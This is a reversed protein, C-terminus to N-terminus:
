RLVQRRLLRTRIRHRTRQRHLPARDRRFRQEARLAHLLERPPQRSRQRLSACVLEPVGTGSIQIRKTSVHDHLSFHLGGNAFDYTNLQGGSTWVNTHSPETGSAGALETVQEGNQGLLYQNTLVFNNVSTPAGCATGTTSGKAIRRGEADYFYQYYSVTGTLNVAIECVRGEADYEYFNEGDYLVNGAGDYTFNSMRNTGAMPTLPSFVANDNAQPACPTITATSFAELTRNGFADYTWCGTSGQYPGSSVTVNNVRNLTDYGFVWNGLLGDNLALLNGNGAYGGSPVQYFTISDDMELTIRGRTDYQRALILAPTASLSTSGLGANVLHGM